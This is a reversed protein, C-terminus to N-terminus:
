PDYNERPTPGDGHTEQTQYTMPLQQKQEDKTTIRRYLCYLGFAFVTLVLLIVLVAIVAKQGKSGDTDNDHVVQVSDQM